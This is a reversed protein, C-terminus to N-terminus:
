PGLPTSPEAAAGAASMPGQPSEASPTACPSTPACRPRQAPTAVPDRRGRPFAEDRRDSDRASGRGMGVSGAEYPEAPEGRHAAAPVGAKYSVQWPSPLRIPQRAPPQSRRDSSVSARLSLRPQKPRDSRLACCAPSQSLRKHILSRLSLHDVSHNLAPLRPLDGPKAHTEQRASYRECGAMRADRADSGM